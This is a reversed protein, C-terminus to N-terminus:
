RKRPLTTSAGDWRSSCWCRTYLVSAVVGCRLLATQMTGPAGAGAGTIGALGGRISWLFLLSFALGAAAFGLVLPLAGLSASPDHLHGFVQDLAVSATEVTLMITMSGGVALGWPQRTWLWVAGLISLPFTFAFDLVWVPNQSIGARGLAAPAVNRTIAPVIAQLWAWAFFATSVLLYLAVPKAARWSAAPAMREPDLSRVLAVISWFSLALLATFLPFYSNFRPAFCFMVANYALYGLSALWVFRARLSGRGALTMSAALLPLAIVLVALATGRANGIVEPADRRFVDWRFLTLGAALAAVAVLVASLIFAVADRRITLTAPSTAAVPRVLAPMAAEESPRAIEIEGIPRRSADATARRATPTTGVSAHSHPRRASPGRAPQPRLLDSGVSGDCGLVLM